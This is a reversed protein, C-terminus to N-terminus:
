HPISTQASEVFQSHIRTSISLTPIQNPDGGGAMLNAVAFCPPFWPSKVMLCRNQKGRFAPIKQKHSILIHYSIIHYLIIHYYSIIHYSIIYYSIIHYSIIHYSITIYHMVCTVLLIAKPTSFRHCNKEWRIGFFVLLSILSSGSPHSGAVSQYNLTAITAM